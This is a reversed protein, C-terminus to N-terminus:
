WGYLVHSRVSDARGELLPVLCRGHVPRAPELGFWDLITPYLDVTTTLAGIREGARRGGPLHVFLPIHAITQYAPCRAKGYYGHEGPGYRPWFHLPATNTRTM